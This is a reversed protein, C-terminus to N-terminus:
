KEGMFKKRLHEVLKRKRYQVANRPIGLRQAIRKEAGRVDDFCAYLFERDEVSLENMFERLREVEWLKIAEMETNANMDCIDYSESGGEEDVTKIFMEVTYNLQAGFGMDAASWTFTIEESQNTPTVEIESPLGNQHLVPAIIDDPNVTVVPETQCGTAAAMVVVAMIMYRFLKKM